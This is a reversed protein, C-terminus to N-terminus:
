KSSIKVFFFIMVPYNNVQYNKRFVQQHSKALVSLLYVFKIPCNKYTYKKKVYHEKAYNYIWIIHSGNSLSQIRYSENLHILETLYKKRM